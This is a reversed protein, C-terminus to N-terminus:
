IRPKHYYYKLDKFRDMLKGDHIVRCFFMEAPRSYPEGELDEYHVMVKETETHLSFGKLVYKNGKYHEFM